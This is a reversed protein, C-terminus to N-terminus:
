SLVLLTVLAVSFHKLTKNPNFLIKLYQNILCKSYILLGSKKGLERKREM